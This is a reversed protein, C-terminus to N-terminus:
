GFYIGHEPNYSTAINHFASALNEVLTTMNEDHMFQQAERDQTLTTVHESDENEGLELQEDIKKDLSRLAAKASAVENFANHANQIMEIYGHLEADKLPGVLSRPVLPMHYPLFGFVGGGLTPDLALINFHEAFNTSATSPAASDGKPLLLDSNAEGVTTFNLVSAGPLVSFVSKSLGAKHRAFNFKETTPVLMVEHPLMKVSNLKAYIQGVMGTFLDHLDHMTEVSNSKFASEVVSKLQPTMTKLNNIYVQINSCGYNYAVMWDTVAAARENFEGASVYSGSSSLIASAVCQHLHLM